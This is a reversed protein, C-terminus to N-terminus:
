PSGGASVEYACRPAGAVIHETRKVEVKDGLLKRFVNL